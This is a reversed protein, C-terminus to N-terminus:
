WPASSNATWSGSRVRALPRVHASQGRHSPLRLGVHPIPWGQRVQDERLSCIFSVEMLTAGGSPSTGCARERDAWARPQFVWM